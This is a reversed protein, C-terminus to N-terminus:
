EGHISLRDLLDRLRRRARGEEMGGILSEVWAALKRANHRHDSKWWQSCVYWREGFPQTWYRNRSGVKTGDPVKRILSHNGIKLGLPNTTTVLRDITEADLTEPFDELLIRMLDRVIDQLSERHEAAGTAPISSVRATAGRRRGGDRQFQPVSVDDTSGRPEEGVPREPPRAPSREPPAPSPRSIPLCRLFEEVDSRRPQVGIMARVKDALLDCLLEDPESSLARWAGPLAERARKRSRDSELRDEASRRAEGSAVQPRRLWADLTAAYERVKDGSSLELRDFRREEPRGDAMSLYFDWCLGDSLVLLPVGNNAAYGFLQSEARADLAGRRKAEVFVQPRGHCLLAYDVRGRGAPYEPRLSGPDASNWALANLIPLIVALKIDEERDLHGSRLNLIATKLISEFEPMPQM